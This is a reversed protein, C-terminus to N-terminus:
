SGRRELSRKHVHNINVVRNNSAKILKRGCSNLKYLKRIFHRLVYQGNLVSAYLQNRLELILYPLTARFSKQNKKQTPQQQQQQTKHQQHIQKEKTYQATCVTCYDCFLM